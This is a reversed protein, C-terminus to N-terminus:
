ISRVLYQSIDLYAGILMGENFGEQVSNGAYLGILTGITSGIISGRAFPKPITLFPFYNKNCFQSNNFDKLPNLENVINELHKNM